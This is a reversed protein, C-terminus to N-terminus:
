QSRSRTRKAIPLDVSDNEREKRKAKKSRAPDQEFGSLKWLAYRSSPMVGSYHKKFDAADNYAAVKWGKNMRLPKGDDPAFVESVLLFKDKAEGQSALLVAIAHVTWENDKRKEEGLRHVLAIGEGPGFSESTADPRTARGPGFMKLSVDGMDEVDIDLFPSVYQPLSMSVGVEHPGEILGFEPRGVASTKIVHEASEICTNPLSVLNSRVFIDYNGACEVNGRTCTLAVDSAKKILYIPTAPVGYSNTRVAVKEYGHSSTSKMVILDFFTTAECDIDYNDGHVHAKALKM